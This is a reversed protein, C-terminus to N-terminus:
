CVWWLRDAQTAAALLSLTPSLVASLRATGSDIVGFAALAGVLSFLYSRDRDGDYATARWRRPCRSLGPPEAVPPATKVTHVSCPLTTPAPDVPAPV